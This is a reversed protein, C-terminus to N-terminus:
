SGTGFVKMQLSFKKLVLSVNEILGFIRRSSFVGEGNMLIKLMGLYDKVIWFTTLVGTFNELVAFFNKLWEFIRLSGFFEGPRWFLGEAGKM